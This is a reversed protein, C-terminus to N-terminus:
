THLEISPTSLSPNPCIQKSESLTIARMTNVNYTFLYYISLYIGLPWKPISFLIVRPKLVLTQSGKGALVLCM